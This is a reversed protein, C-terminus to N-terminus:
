SLTVRQGAFPKGDVQLSATIVSSGNYMATAPSVTLSTPHVVGTGQLQFTQDGGPANYSFAISATRTGAATPTFSVLAMCYSGAPLLNGNTPCDTSLAFDSPGTLAISNVPLPGTGTSSLM